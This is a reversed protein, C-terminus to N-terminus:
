SMAALKVTLRNITRMSRATWEGGAHAHMVQSVSGWGGERKTRDLAKGDNRLVDLKWVGRVRPAAFASFLLRESDPPRPPVRDSDLAMVLGATSRRGPPAAPSITLSCQAAAVLQVFEIADFVAVRIDLKVKLLASLSNATTRDNAEIIYNRTHGVSVVFRVGSGKLRTNWGRLLEAATPRHRADGVNARGVEFLVFRRIESM